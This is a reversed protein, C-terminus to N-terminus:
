PLLGYPSAQQERASMEPSAHDLLRDDSDSDHRLARERRLAPQGPARSDDSRRLGPELDPARHAREASNSAVAIKAVVNLQNQVVYLTRGALVIGDGNPM